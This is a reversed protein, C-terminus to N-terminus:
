RLAIERHVRVAVASTGEKAHLYVKTNEAAAGSDPSDCVGKFATVLGMVLAMELISFGGEWNGLSVAACM